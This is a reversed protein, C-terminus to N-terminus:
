RWRRFLLIFVLITPNSQSFKREINALRQNIQVMEPSEGSAQPVSAQASEAPLQCEDAAVKELQALRQRMREMEPDAQQKEVIAVQVKAQRKLRLKRATRKVEETRVAKKLRRKQQRM